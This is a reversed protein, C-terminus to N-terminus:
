EKLFWRKKKFQLVAKGGSIIGTETPIGKQYQLSYNNLWRVKTAGWDTPEVSYEVRCSDRDFRYITLSNPNYQAELDVCFAAFRKHDPSLLPKGPVSCQNGNNENVLLFGSVEGSRYEFRFLFYQTRAILGKFSYAEDEHQRNIYRKIKGNRLYVTLTDGNKFVGHLTKATAHIAKVHQAPQSGAVTSYYICFLLSIFVRISMAYFVSLSSFM